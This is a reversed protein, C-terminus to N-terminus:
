FRLPPNSSTFFVALRTSGDSSKFGLFFNTAPTRLTDLVRAQSTPCRISGFGRAVAAVSTATVLKGIQFQIADGAADM